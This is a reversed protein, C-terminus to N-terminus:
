KWISKARSCFNQKVNRTRSMYANCSVEDTKEKRENTEKDIVVAYGRKTVVPFPPVSSRCTAAKSLIRDFADKIDVEETEITEIDQNKIVIENIIKL